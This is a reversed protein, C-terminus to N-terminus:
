VVVAQGKLSQELTVEEWSGGAARSGPSSVGDLRPWQRKEAGPLQKLTLVKDPSTVKGWREVHYWARHPFM